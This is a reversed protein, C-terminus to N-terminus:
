RTLVGGQAGYFVIISILTVGDLQEEPAKLICDTM